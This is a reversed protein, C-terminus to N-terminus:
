YPTSGASDFYSVAVFRLQDASIVTTGTHMDEFEDAPDTGRMRLTGTLVISREGTEETQPNASRLWGGIVRGDVLDCTVWVYSDPYVQFAETWGSNTRIPRREYEDAWRAVAGAFSESGIRSVRSASRRFWGPPCAAVFALVSAVSLLTALWIGLSVFDARVYAQGERALRGIDPTWNPSSVRIAGFAALTVGNCVLSVTVVAATERLTTYQRAPFRSERRALFAFGPTLLSVFLAVGVLTSPM